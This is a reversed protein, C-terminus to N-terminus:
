ILTGEAFEQQCICYHRPEKCSRAIIDLSALFITSCTDVNGTPFDEPYIDLFTIAPDEPLVIDLKRLFALSVELTSTCAQLGMLLPPTYRERWMRVLM